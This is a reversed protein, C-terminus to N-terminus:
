TCAHVIIITLCNRFLIDYPYYMTFISFPLLGFPCTDKYLPRVLYSSIDYYAIRSHHETMSEFRLYRMLCSALMHAKKICSEVNKISMISAGLSSLQSPVCEFQMCEEWISNVMHGEGLWCNSAVWRVACGRNGSYACSLTTRRDTCCESHVYYCNLWYDPLLLPGANLYEGSVFWFCQLVKILSVFLLDLFIKHARACWFKNPFIMVKECICHGGIRCWLM